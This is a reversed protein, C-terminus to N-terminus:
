VRFFSLCHDGIVRRYLFVFSSSVVCKENKHTEIMMLANAAFWQQRHLHETAVSAMGSHWPPTLFILNARLGNSNQIPKTMDALLCHASDGMEAVRKWLNTIVEVEKDIFIVHNAGEQLSQWGLAGSGCFGDIVTAGDFSFSEHHRLHDFLSRKARATM